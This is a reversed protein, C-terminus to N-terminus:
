GVKVLLEKLKKLAKGRHSIKNKESLTLEAYTKEMDEVIFLPDYGFGDKGQPKFAIKGSCEGRILHEQGDPFIIAIVSVFKAQRYSMTIDKLEMLLKNNNEQDTAKEGAYRASYVGPQGDLFDVELGSDDAIIAESTYKKLSRAKILANEEFTTGTEEIDLDFGVEKMTSINFGEGLYSEIEEKKHKNGTAIVIKM